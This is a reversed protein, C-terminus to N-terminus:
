RGDEKKELKDAAKNHRASRIWCSVAAKTHGNAWAADAAERELAAASRLEAPTAVRKM